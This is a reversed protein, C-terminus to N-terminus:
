ELEEVASEAVNPRPLEDKKRPKENEEEAGQSAGKGPSRDLEHNKTGDRSNSATAEHGNRLHNHAIYHGQFLPSLILTDQYTRVIRNTLREAHRQSSM